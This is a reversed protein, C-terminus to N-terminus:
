VSNQEIMLTRGSSLGEDRPFDATGDRRDLETSLLREKETIKIGLAVPPMRPIVDLSHPLNQLLRLGIIVDQCSALRMRHTFEDLLRQRLDSYANYPLSDPRRFLSNIGSRATAAPA